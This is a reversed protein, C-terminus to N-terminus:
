RLLYPRDHETRSVQPTEPREEAVPPLHGTLSVYLARVRSASIRGERGGDCAAGRVGVIDADLDRVAAFDAEGLKGAVATLLEDGRAMDLWARITNPALYTFLGGGDKRATDLLIGDAGARGALEPVASPALSGARHADAYAVAIVQTSANGERVGDAAAALLGRVRAASTIGAFGVKVFALGLAAAERAAHAVEGEDSADGLAASVPRHAGVAAIMARLTDPQVAGLGGRRPDKADVIDAGGDLAARADAADAASVLLRM